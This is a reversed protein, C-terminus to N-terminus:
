RCWWRAGRREAALRIRGGRPTYRAANNLLNAIVQSLRTPDAYLVVPEDPLTVTLEHGAAEVVPRSTEVAAEVVAALEVRECRLELRNRSIRSVDMLDDILRSMQRVQRDIVDRARQLEPEAPGKLRLIEVAHRVPALPNRLEHALTALFEDKLRDAEQLAQEAQKREDVDIVSGIYGLLEGDDGLWPKGADIAWRYSGDATRLRYDLRFPQRAAAADLYTQRARGRDDPHVTELWGLGVGEDESQGTHEYWGRSLFTCRGRDDALWLMAPAADAMTRFRVESERRLKAMKLHAEVRASLERASFPKVLYDDAGADLGEVRAEEGARASLLIVPVSRTRPDSRLERLLGFGDLRPMMLDTLVLDPPRRRVAALAEVGDGATEVEFRPALLHPLM